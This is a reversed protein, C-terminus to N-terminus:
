GEGPCRIFPNDKTRWEDKCFRGTHHGFFIGKPTIEPTTCCQNILVVGHVFFRLPM